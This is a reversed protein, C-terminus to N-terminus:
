KPEGSSSRQSDKFSKALLSRADADGLKRAPHNRNMGDAIYRLLEPAFMDPLEFSHTKVNKEARIHEIQTEWFLVGDRSISQMGSNSFVIDVVACYVKGGTEETIDEVNVDIAKALAELRQEQPQTKGNLYRSLESPKIGACQAVEKKLIGKNRLLYAFKEASFRMIKESM